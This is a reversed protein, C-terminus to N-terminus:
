DLKDAVMPPGALLINALSKDETVELQPLNAERLLELYEAKTKSEVYLYQTETKM